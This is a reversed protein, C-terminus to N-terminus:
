GFWCPLPSVPSLQQPFGPAAVNSLAMVALQRDDSKPMHNGPGSSSDKM